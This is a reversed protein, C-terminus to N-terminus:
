EYRLSEVPDLAAAKRAPLIGAALGISVLIAVATLAIPWSPKPNMIYQMAMSETPIADVGLVVGAALLGSMRLNLQAVTSAV